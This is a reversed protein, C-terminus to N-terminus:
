RIHEIKEELQESTVSKTRQLFNTLSPLASVVELSPHTYTHVFLDNPKMSSSNLQASFYGVAGGVTRGM